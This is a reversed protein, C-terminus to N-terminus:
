ATRSDLYNKFVYGVLATAPAGIAAIVAATGADGKGAALAAVAYDYAWHGQVWLMYMSVFMVVRRIVGRTDVWDWFQTLGNSFIKPM